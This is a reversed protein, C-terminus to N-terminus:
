RTHGFFIHAKIADIVEKQTPEPNYFKYHSAGKIAEAVQLIPQNQTGITPTQAITNKPKDIYSWVLMMFVIIALIYFLHKGSM